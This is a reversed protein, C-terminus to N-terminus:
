NRWYDQLQIFWFLAMVGANLEGHPAKGMGCQAPEVLVTLDQLAFIDARLHLVVLIVQFAAQNKLVWCM